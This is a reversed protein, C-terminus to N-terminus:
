SLFAMSHVCHKNWKSNYQTCLDNEVSCVEPLKDNNWLTVTKWNLDLMLGQRHEGLGYIQTSPLM